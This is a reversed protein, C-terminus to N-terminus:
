LQETLREIETREEKLWQKAAYYLPQLCDRKFEESKSTIQLIDCMTNQETADNYEVVLKELASIKKTIYEVAAIYKDHFDRQYAQTEEREYIVGWSNAKAVCTQYYEDMDQLFDKRGQSNDLYLVVKALRSYDFMGVADSLIQELRRLADRKYEIELRVKQKRDNNILTITGVLATLIGGLYSGWFLLWEGESGVISCFRPIGILFNLLVPIGLLVIFLIGLGCPNCSLSQM